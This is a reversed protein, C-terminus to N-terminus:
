NFPMVDTDTVPKTDEEDLSFMSQNAEEPNSVKGKPQYEEFKIINECWLYPYKTKGEKNTYPEFGLPVRVDEANATIIQHKGKFLKDNVSDGFRVEVWHENGDADKMITQMKTFPTGDKKKHNTFLLKFKVEKVVNKKETNEM